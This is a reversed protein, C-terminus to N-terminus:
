LFSGAKVGMMSSCEEGILVGFCSTMTTTSANRTGMEIATSTDCSTVLPTKLAVVKLMLTDHARYVEGMGGAGLLSTIQYHGLRSGAALNM